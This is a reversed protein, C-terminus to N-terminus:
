SRVRALIGNTVSHFFDKAIRLPSPGSHGFFHSSSTRRYNGLRGWPLRVDHQATLNVVYTLSNARVSEYTAARGALAAFAIQGAPLHAGLAEQLRELDRTAGAVDAVILVRDGMATAERVERMAGARFDCHYYHNLGIRMESRLFRGVMEGGTGVSIIRTPRFENGFLYIKALAETAATVTLVPSPSTLFVPEFEATRIYDAVLRKVAKHHDTNALLEKDLLRVVGSSTKRLAFELYREVVHAKALSTSRDRLLKAEIATIINRPESEVIIDALRDVAARRLWTESYEDFVSRMRMSWLFSRDHKHELLHLIEAFHAQDDMPAVPLAEDAYVVQQAQALAPLTKRAAIRNAVADLDALAQSKRLELAAREQADGRAVKRSAAALEAGVELSAVMRELTAEPLQVYRRREADSPASSPSRLAVLRDVLRDASPM